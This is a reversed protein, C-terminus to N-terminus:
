GAAWLLRYYATREIDPEIGYADLLAREFGPGYNWVTSWTAVALDAWPDAVGLSGLDVVGAVTGDDAILTNPACADGHAVVPNEVPPTDALMAMVDTADLSALEEYHPATWSREAVGREAEAVRDEPNWRFPCADVPLSDHVLRLGRGIARVAGRPRHRWHDDVANRADIAATAFWSGHEDTGRDIVRPVSLYRRAWLLRDVEADLDIGNGPPNWKVFAVPDADGITFTLGGLENRWRPEIRRGDAFAAVAAPVTVSEGPVGALM